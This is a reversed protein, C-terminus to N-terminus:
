WETFGGYEEYLKENQRCVWNYYDELNLKSAASRDLLVTTYRHMQLISAPCCSTIPGEIMAQVAAAKKEGTALLLVHRADMITGIGMTIALRPQFEDNGPENDKITQATLTKIRTRSAMSSTPENFGIHGNAGIGLVQLDIGGAAAIKREYDPGVARPNEGESCCPLHTNKVNIDIHTFLERQMYSRYSQPSDPPLGLYEDLNFTTVDKFSIEDAKYRAILQQYMTIPTAGTALGLVADPKKKILECILQAGQQAVADSNELIIVEM